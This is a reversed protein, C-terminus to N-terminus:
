EWCWPWIGFEDVGFCSNSYCDEQFLCDELLLSIQQYNLPKCVSYSDETQLPHTCCTTQDSKKAQLLSIIKQDVSSESSFPHQGADPDNMQSGDAIPSEKSLELSSQPSSAAPKKDLDSVHQLISSLSRPHSLNWDPSPALVDKTDTENSDCKTKLKAKLSSIEVYLKEKEEMLTDYAGKLINYDRELQKTKWRARRNQFWIAVQRPQLGLDRALQLKREPELHNDVDFSRELSRVQEATLRRKKEAHHFADDAILEGDGTDDSAELLDSSTRKANGAMIEEQGAAM